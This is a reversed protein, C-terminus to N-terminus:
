EITPRERFLAGKPGKLESRRQIIWRQLAAGKVLYVKGNAIVEAAFEVELPIPARM